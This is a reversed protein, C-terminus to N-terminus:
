GISQQIARFSAFVTPNLIMAIVNKVPVVTPAGFFVKQNVGLPNILAALIALGTLRCVFVKLIGSAAVSDIMMRWFGVEGNIATM